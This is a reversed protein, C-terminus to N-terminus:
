RGDAARWCSKPRASCDAAIRSHRERDETMAHATMAIIPLDAFRGDRRLEATAQLGDLEPMQIDMLVADYPSARAKEVAERGNNALRVSHGRRALLRELLQANIENDEAM